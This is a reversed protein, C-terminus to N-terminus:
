VEELRRAAAQIRDMWLKLDPALQRPVCDGCIEGALSRIGRLSGRLVPSEARAEPVRELLEEFERMAAALSALISELVSEPPATQPRYLLDHIAHLEGSFVMALSEVRPLIRGRDLGSVQAEVSIAQMGTLLLHLNMRVRELREEFAIHHIEETLREQRRSVFKSVVVGFILLGAAAEAVALARAPGVPVVDGFGVSTATVFSFYLATLFGHGDAGVARGGELLVAGGLLAALWLVVGCGAIM